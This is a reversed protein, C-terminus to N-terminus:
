EEEERHRYRAGGEEDEERIKEEEYREEEDEHQAREVIEDADIHYLEDQYFDKIMMDIHRPLGVMFEIDYSVYERLIVEKEDDFPDSTVVFLINGDRNLPLCSNRLLVDKPFMSVLDHDFITGLVDVAPVEYYEQLAKLLDEKEVIGEELLFDEIYESEHNEFDRRLADGDRSNLIGKKGLIRILGELLNEFREKKRSIKENMVLRRGRHLFLMDLQIGTYSLVQLIEASEFLFDNFEQM